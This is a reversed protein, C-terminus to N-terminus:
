FAPNPNYMCRMENEVKEGLKSSIGSCARVDMIDFILKWVLSDPQVTRNDDVVVLRVFHNSYCTVISNNTLPTVRHM